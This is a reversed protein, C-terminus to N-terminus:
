VFRGDPTVVAGRPNDDGSPVPEGRPAIRGDGAIAFASVTATGRNVAYLMRGSPAIALGNPDGNAPVPPDLRTLAGDEGVRYAAIASEDTDGDPQKGNAACATRGDDGGGSCFERHTSM